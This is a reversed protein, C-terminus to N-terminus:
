PIRPWPSPGFLRFLRGLTQRTAAVVSPYIGEDLPGLWSCIAELAKREYPDVHVHPVALSGVCRKDQVRCHEYTHEDSAWRGHIELWEPEWGHFRTLHDRSWAVTGVGHEIEFRVDNFDRLTPSKTAIVHYGDRAQRRDDTM